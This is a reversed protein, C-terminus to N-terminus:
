GDMEESFSRMEYETKKPQTGCGSPGTSEMGQGGGSPAPPVAAPQAHVPGTAPHQAHAM